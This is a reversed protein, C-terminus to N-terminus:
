RGSMATVINILQLSFRVGKRRPAFVVVGGPEGRFSKMGSLSLELVPFTAWWGCSVDLIRCAKAFMAFVFAFAVPCGGSPAALLM